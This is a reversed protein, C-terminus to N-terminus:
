RVAGKALIEDFDERFAEFREATMLQFGGFQMYARMSMIQVRMREAIDALADYDERRVFIQAPLSNFGTAVEHATYTRM